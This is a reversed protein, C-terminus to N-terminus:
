YKSFSPYQLNEFKLCCDFICRKSICILENRHFLFHSQAISRLAWKCVM